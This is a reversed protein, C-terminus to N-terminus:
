RSPPSKPARGSDLPSNHRGRVRAHAISLIELTLDRTARGPNVISVWSQASYVPHPLIRDSAAFDTNATSSKAAGPRQALLREFTSAGVAVNLRFAGDRSLNSDEDFGPYDHTVITAFMSRLERPGDVSPEYFCFVDGWAVEPAGSAASAVDIVVGEMAGIHAILEDVTM